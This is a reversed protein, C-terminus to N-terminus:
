TADHKETSELRDLFDQLANKMLYTWGEAFNEPVFDPCDALSELGQHTLKLITKNGNQFLEFTVVSQGEYGKYAWTHKLKREPIIEIIECLHTYNVGTKGKGDFQFKFGVEAKFESMDFYWQKLLNHETLVRWVLAVPADFEHKIILPKTNM